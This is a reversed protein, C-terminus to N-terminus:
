ISKTSELEAKEILIDICHRAKKLDEVEDKKCRFYKNVKTHVAAKLGAYGYNRYTFELPQIGMETYHSGGVQTNSAKM